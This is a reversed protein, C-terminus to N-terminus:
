WIGLQEDREARDAVAEWIAGGRPGTSRVQLREVPIARAAGRDDRVGVSGDRERREVRPRRGRAATAHAPLAGPRRPAARDGPARERRARGAHARPPATMRHPAGAAEAHRGAVPRLRGGQAPLLHAGRPPPPDPVSPESARCSPRPSTRRNSAAGQAVVVDGATGGDSAQQVMNTRVGQPCLCSVKIGRDGYTIALWEALGVAAHKTVSYPLTGINTLLGAASATHLLYGEGRALMGPLVARAAYVHAMVNVDWIRQWAEDPAEVGGLM